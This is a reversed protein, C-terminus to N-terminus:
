KEWYIQTLNTTNDLLQIKLKLVLTVLGLGEITEAPKEYKVILNFTNFFFFMSLCAPFLVKPEGKGARHILYEHAPQQLGM